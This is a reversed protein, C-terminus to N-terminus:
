CWRKEAAELKKLLQEFRKRVDVKKNRSHSVGDPERWTQKYSYEAGFESAADTMAQRIELYFEAASKETPDAQQGIIKLLKGFDPVSMRFLLGETLFKYKTKPLDIRIVDRM